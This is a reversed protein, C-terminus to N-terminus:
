TRGFDRDLPDIIVWISDGAALPEGDLGKEDDADLRYHMADGPAPGPEAAGGLALDPVTPKGPRPKVSVKGRVRGYVKSLFSDAALPQARGEWILVETCDPGTLGVRLRICNAEWRARLTWAMMEDDTLPVSFAVANRTDLPYVDALTM